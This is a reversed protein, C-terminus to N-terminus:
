ALMKFIDYDFREYPPTVRQRRSDYRELSYAVGPGDAMGHVGFRQGSTREWDFLALYAPAIAEHTGVVRTTAHSAAPVRLLEMGSPVRPCESVQTGVWYTYEMGPSEETQLSVGHFVEAEMRHGIEPLRAMLALWASPVREQLREFTGTVKLAVVVLEPLKVVSVPTM